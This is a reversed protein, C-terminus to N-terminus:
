VPLQIFMTVTNNSTVQIYKITFLVSLEHKSNTKIQTVHAYLITQLKKFRILRFRFNKTVDDM